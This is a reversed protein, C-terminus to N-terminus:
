KRAAPKRAVPKKAAHRTVDEKKAAAKKVTLMPAKPKAPANRLAKSTTTTAPLPLVRKATKKAIPIRAITDTQKLAGWLAPEQFAIAGGGRKEQSIMRNIDGVCVWDQEVGIGWKAHDATEPWKWPADGSSQLRVM